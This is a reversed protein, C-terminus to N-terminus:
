TADSYEGSLDPTANHGALPEALLDPVIEPNIIDVNGGLLRYKGGPLMLIIWTPIKARTFLELVAQCGLSRGNWVILATDPQWRCLAQGSHFRTVSWGNARAIDGAYTHVGGRLFTGIKVDPTQRPFFAPEAADLAVRAVHYPTDASGIIALKM